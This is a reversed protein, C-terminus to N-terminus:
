DKELFRKRFENTLEDAISAAERAIVETQSTSGGDHRFDQVAAAAFQVWVQAIFEPAVNVKEYIM